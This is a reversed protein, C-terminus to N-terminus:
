YYGEEKTNTDSPSFFYHFASVLSLLIAYRVNVYINFLLGSIIIKKYAKFYNIGKEKQRSSFKAMQHTTTNTRRCRTEILGKVGSNFGQACRQRVLNKSCVKSRSGHTTNIYAYFM